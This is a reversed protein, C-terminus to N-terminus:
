LTLTVGLASLVNDIHNAITHSSSGAFLLGVAKNTSRELILSGSDGSASFPQSNLGVIIMQNEFTANGGDYQVNVDTEISTVRGATFGTTRGFKHVVMDIAAPATGRPAGLFLVAPTAEQGPLLEALACDVTNTGTTSLPVFRTLRAIPPDDPRGGDLLGPQLIPGGIALRNEDALVHNNSVVYRKEGDTALFGFTGAMTSPHQADFFGVSCGPQLPRFRGRPNPPNPPGSVGPAPSTPSVPPMAALRRFTGVEEVDVPLGGVDAPLLHGNAIQEQPYKIRVLFKVALVGTARGNVLKEGIGVGVVNSSPAPGAASRRGHRTHPAQGLHERTMERKAARLQDFREPHPTLFHDPSPTERTTM